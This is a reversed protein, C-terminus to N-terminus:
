SKINGKSAVHAPSLIIAMCMYQSLDDNFFVKNQLRYKKGNLTMYM